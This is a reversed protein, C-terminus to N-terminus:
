PYGNVREDAHDINNRKIEENKLLAKLAKHHGGSSAFHLVTFKM